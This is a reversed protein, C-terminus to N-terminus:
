VFVEGINLVLRPRQVQVASVRWKVGNWTVYRISQFNEYAFADALVSVENNLQVNDNLTSTAVLRNSVRTIDGYYSREEIGEVFVGPAPNTLVAYGIQGFYRAM